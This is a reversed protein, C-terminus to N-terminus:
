ERVNVRNPTAGLRGVIGEAESKLVTKDLSWFVKSPVCEWCLVLWSSTAPTSSALWPNGATCSASACTLWDTKRYNYYGRMLYNKAAPVTWNYAGPFEPSFDKKRHNDTQTKMCFLFLRKFACPNIVFAFKADISRCYVSSYCITLQGM